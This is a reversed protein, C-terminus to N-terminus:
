GIIVRNRGSEKAKLLARDARDIVQEGNKDATNLTAVGISVTVQLNAKQVSSDFTLQAVEERVRQAIVEAQEDNTGPLIGIFEEGGYRGATDYERMCNKICNAIGQIVQDGIQHGHIDNVFKFKDADVMIISFSDNERIARKFEYELQEFVKRRNYLGSLPDLNVLRVLQENSKSLKLNAGRITEYWFMVARYALYSLAVMVALLIFLPYSLSDVTNQAQAFSMLEGNAWDISSIQSLSIYRGAGVFCVVVTLFSAIMAVMASKANKLHIASDKVSLLKAEVKPGLFYLVPAVILITQLWGGLWWGLWVPHAVNLGVNNTLAWIFAGISGALAAVLSIMLFGVLSEVGRLDTRMPTVRYFMYYIALGIPNALSFVFIWELPMGGILAVLFTSLYAPIAAWWFGLWVVFPVCLLMPLYVTLYISQSGFEIGIGTWEFVRTMMGTPVVIISLILWTILLRKFEGGKKWMAIPTFNIFSNGLPIELEQKKDHLKIKDM